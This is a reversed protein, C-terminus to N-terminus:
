SVVNLLNKTLTETRFSDTSTNSRIEKVFQIRWRPVSTANSSTRAHDLFLWRNTLRNLWCKRANKDDLGACHNNVLSKSTLQISPFAMAMALYITHVRPCVTVVTTVTVALSKNRKYGCCLRKWSNSNALQHWTNLRPVPLRDLETVSSKLILISRIM